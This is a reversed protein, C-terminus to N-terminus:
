NEYLGKTNSRFGENVKKIRFLLALKFVGRLFSRVGNRESIYLVYPSFRSGTLNQAIIFETTKSAISVNFGGGEFQAIHLAVSNPLTSWLYFLDAM